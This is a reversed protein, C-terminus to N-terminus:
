GPLENTYNQRYPAYTEVRQGYISPSRYSTFGFTQVFFKNHYALRDYYIKRWIPPNM